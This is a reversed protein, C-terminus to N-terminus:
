SGGAPAVKQINSVPTGLKDHEAYGTLQLTLSDLIAFADKYGELEMGFRDEVIAYQPDHDTVLELQRLSAGAPIQHRPVDPFGSRALAARIEDTVGPGLDATYTANGQRAYHELTAHHGADITLVVRGFPDGPNHENGITFWLVTRPDIASRRLRAVPVVEGGVSQVFAEADARSSFLGHANLRPDDLHERLLSRGGQAVDVGLFDFAAGATNGLVVIDYGTIGDRALDTLLRRLGPLDAAAELERARARIAEPVEDGLSPRELGEYPGPGLIVLRRDSVASPAPPDPEEARRGFLRRM